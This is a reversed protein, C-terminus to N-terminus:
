AQQLVASRWSCHLLCQQKASAAKVIGEVRFAPKSHSGAHCCYSSQHRVQVWYEAGQWNEPLHQQVHQQYLLHIALETPTRCAEPGALISEQLLLLLLLLLLVNSSSGRALSWLREATCM